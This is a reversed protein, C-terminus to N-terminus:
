HGDRDQRERSHTIQLAPDTSRTARNCIRTSSVAPATAGAVGRQSARHNSCRRTPFTLRNPWRALPSPQQDVPFSAAPRLLARLLDSDCLDCLGCLFIRLKFGNKSREHKRARGKRGGRTQSLTGRQSVPGGEGPYHCECAIRWGGDAMRWGSGAQNCESGTRVCSASPELVAIPSICLYFAPAGRRM